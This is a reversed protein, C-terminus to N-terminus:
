VNQVAQESLTIINENLLDYVYKNSLSYRTELSVKFECWLPLPLNKKDDWIFQTSPTCTFNTIIWDVLGTIPNKNNGRVIINGEKDNAHSYVKDGFTFLTTFNGNNRGLVTRATVDGYLGNIANVVGGAYGAVREGFSTYQQQEEESPTSFMSKLAEFIDSGTDVFGAATRKIFDATDTGFKIPKVPSCIHTLFKLIDHYNTSAVTDENFSKFTLDIKLPTTGKVKQQTWADTLIMPQFGQESQGAFAKIVKSNIMEAITKSLKAGAADTWETSFSLALNDLSVGKFGMIGEFGPRWFLKNTDYYDNKYLDICFYNNQGIFTNKATSYSNNKNKIIQLSNM